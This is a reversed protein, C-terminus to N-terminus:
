GREYEKCHPRKYGDPILEPTQFNKQPRTPCDPTVTKNKTADLYNKKYNKDAWTGLANWYLKSKFTDPKAEFGYSAYLDAIEQVWQECDNKDEKALTYKGGKNYYDYCQASPFFADHFGQHIGFLERTDNVELLFSEALNDYNVKGGARPKVAQDPTSDTAESTSSNNEVNNIQQINDGGGSCATFSLATSLVFFSLLKKSKIM